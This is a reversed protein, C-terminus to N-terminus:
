PSFLAEVMMTEVCKLANGVCQDMNFYRYTGLRGVFSVGEEHEILGRYKNALDGAYKTPMPYFPPGEGTPYEYVLTTEGSTRGNIRGYDAIRTFPIEPDNYNVVPAAQVWPVRVQQFMLSRYPLRGLKYDFYADLEGSWVLHKWQFHTKAQEFSLRPIFTINPHAIMKQMMATYGNAPIAQYKDSFYRDDLSYRVPIRAAAAATVETAPLGWQKQTYGEYFAHYMRYPIRALLYDEASGEVSKKGRRERTILGDVFDVAEKESIFSRTYFESLTRRNIPFQFIRGETYAQVRHYYTRWETFQSLYEWIRDSQTHFLHPGMRSLLLGAEEYDGAAGGLWDARDILLVTKDYQTALREAVTCGSLGAGVVLVDYTSGEM